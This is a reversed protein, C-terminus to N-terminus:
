DEMSINLTEGVSKIDMGTFRFRSYQTKSVTHTVSIWTLIRELFANNGAVSFDDVHALVARKLVGDENLHRM